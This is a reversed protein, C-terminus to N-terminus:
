QLGRRKGDGDSMSTLKRPRLFGMLFAHSIGNTFPAFSRLGLKSNECLLSIIILLM